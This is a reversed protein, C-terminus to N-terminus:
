RPGFCECFGLRCDAAWLVPINRLIERVAVNEALPFGITGYPLPPGQPKASDDLRLPPGQ